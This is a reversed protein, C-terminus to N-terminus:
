DKKFTDKKAYHTPEDMMPMLLEENKKPTLKKKAPEQTYYKQSGQQEPAILESITDSLENKVTDTTVAVNNGTGNGGGNEEPPRTIYSILGGIGALILISAAAIWKRYRIGFPIVKAAESASPEAIAAALRRYKELERRCSECTLLHKQFAIEEAETMGNSFYREIDDKNYQCM